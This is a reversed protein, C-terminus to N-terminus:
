PSGNYVRYFAEARMHRKRCKEIEFQLVLKTGKSHKARLDFKIDSINKHRALKYPEMHVTNHQVIQVSFRDSCMCNRLKRKKRTAYCHIASEYHRRKLKNRIVTLTTSESINIGTVFADSLYICTRVSLSLM